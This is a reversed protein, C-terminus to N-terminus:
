ELATSSARSRALSTEARSTMAACRACISRTLGFTLAITVSTASRAIASGGAGVLAERAAVRRRRAARAAPRACPDRRCRRCGSSARSATRDRSRASAVVRRDDRPHARGARDRDALGVRRLEAGPRLREVRDEARRAIRVVQRLGAAAAAAAGRHREGAAHHRDGVAAVGASRQAIGGREAVDDAKPRRRAAHGRSDVDHDGSDTDPGIARVTASTASNRLAIAPGSGRLGSDISSSPPANRAGSSRLKLPTRTAQHRPSPPMGKSGSIRRTTSAFRRM